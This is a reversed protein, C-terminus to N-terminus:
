RSCGELGFALAQIKARSFAVIGFDLACLVNWLPELSIRTEIMVQAEEHRSGLGDDVVTM